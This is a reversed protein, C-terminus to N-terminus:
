YINYSRKYDKQRQIEKAIQEKDRELEKLIDDIMPHTKIFENFGENSFTREYYQIEEKTSSCYFKTVPMWDHKSEANFKLKILGCSRRDIHFRCKKGKNNLLYKEYQEMTKDRFWDNIIEKLKNLYKM